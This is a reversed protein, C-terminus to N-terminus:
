VPPNTVPSVTRSLAPDAEAVTSIVSASPPSRCRATARMRAALGDAIGNEETNERPLGARTPETDSESLSKSSVTSSFASPAAVAM